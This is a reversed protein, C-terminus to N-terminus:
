RAALLCLLSVPFVEVTCLYLFWHLISIKKGLFLYLTERVYLVATVASGAAALCLWAGGTGGPALTFLLLPPSVVVAGFSFYTHKLRLLQAAFPQELTVAGATRLAAFQYAAVACALAFVGAHLLLATGQPVAATWAPLPLAAGYKVAAIGAFATGLLAALNLFRGFGSGGSEEDCDRARVTDRRVRGFLRVIDDRHRVVFVAYAAALALLCGRYLPADGITAGPPSRFPEPPVAVSAAGYFEAPSVDRYVPGEKPLAGFATRSAAAAPVGEWTAAEAGPGATMTAEPEGDLAAPGPLAGERVAAEPLVGEGVAEMEPGVTTAPLADPLAGPAGAADPAVPAGVSDRGGGAAARAAGLAAGHGAFM